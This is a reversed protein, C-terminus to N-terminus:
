NNFCIYSNYHFQSKSQNQIGMPIVEVSHYLRPVAFCLTKICCQDSWHTHLSDTSLWKITVWPTEMRYDNNHAHIALYRFTAMRYPVLEVLLLTPQLCQHTATISSKSIGQADKLLQKQVKVDDVRRPSGSGGLRGGSFCPRILAANVM